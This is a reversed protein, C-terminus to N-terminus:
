VIPKKTDEGMYRSSNVARGVRDFVLQGDLHHDLLLGTAEALSTQPDLWARYFEDEMIVPMRVHIHDIQPTAPATIISCSTIGLTDNKAWLGAFSFPRGNPLQILWPDKKGDVPSTTWEFYGDAPILCRRWKFADRFAPATGVTEMRANFMAAKPMEKAWHPVLWWRGTDLERRGDRDLHCFMVDETPAINYGPQLNTSPYLEDSLAGVTQRLAIVITLPVPLCPGACVWHRM